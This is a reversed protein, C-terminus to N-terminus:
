PNTQEREFLWKRRLLSLSLPHTGSPDCTLFSPSICCLPGHQLCSGGDSSLPQTERGGQSVEQLVPSSLGDPQDIMDYFCLNSQCLGNQTPSAHLPPPPSLSESPVPTSPPCRPSLTSPHPSPTLRPSSQLTASPCARVAAPFPMLSSLFFLCGGPFPDPEGSSASVLSCLHEAQDQPAWHPM